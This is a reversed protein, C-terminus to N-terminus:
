TSCADLVGVALKRSWHQHTPVKSGRAFVTEQTMWSRVPTGFGSKRRTAVADPLAPHASAALRRKGENSRMDALLPGLKAALNTDVYPTRVELGHAMSAWDCDRLLQNRLYMQSELLLVQTADHASEAARARVHDHWRLRRLGEVCTESPLVHSIEWPMFLGRRLLYAGAFTPGLELLGAAKPSTGSRAFFPASIRRALGGVGPLVRAWRTNRVWKPIDTFSDYGGLLEDAGVGSMAVKLGQERCAKAVFWTNIGDISPQDMAALIQPLDDHFERQAVRRVVHKLGYRSAVEAALPAEDESTSGFEDFAVTTAVTPEERLVAIHAALVGSDIGASLFLGVPVDAVLHARVSDRIADDFDADSIRAAGGRLCSALDFHRVPQRPGTEGVWQYCGAPVARVQQYLTWPEPVSGFLFFGVQGAPEPARSVRASAMLAKVQSAVRVTWGDDALYLPKIGYADRALLMEGVRGDWLAFAYMGRLREFMGVGHELYMALVVETDSGTRFAVGKAELELRLERHNYIEGNYTIRLQGDSSAMPQAAAESLDIISLRRHGLAVRQDGSFWEGQGDPGRAAMQDRIARIEDRDAISAAYHYAFIAAVGCM